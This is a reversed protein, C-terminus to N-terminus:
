RWGVASGVIIVFLVKLLSFLCNRIIGSRLAAPVFLVLM